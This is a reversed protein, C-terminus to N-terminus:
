IKDTATAELTAAKAAKNYTPHGTSAVLLADLDILSDKGKALSIPTLSWRDYTKLKSYCHLFDFGRNGESLARYM